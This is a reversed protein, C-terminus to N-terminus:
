GAASPDLTPQGDPCCDVETEVVQPDPANYLVLNSLHEFDDPAVRDLRLALCGDGSRKVTATAAIPLPEGGTGLLIRVQCATGPELSEACDLNVGNLSVDHVRCAFERGGEPHV